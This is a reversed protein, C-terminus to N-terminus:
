PTMIEMTNLAFTLPLMPGSPRHVRSFKKVPVNELKDKAWIVQLKDKELISVSEDNAGKRRFPNVSNQPPMVVPSQLRMPPAETPTVPAFAAMASAASPCNNMLIRMTSIKEEMMGM